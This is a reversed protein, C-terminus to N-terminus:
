RPYSWPGFGQHATSAAASALSKAHHEPIVAPDEIALDGLVSAHDGEVHRPIETPVETPSSGEDGDSSNPM